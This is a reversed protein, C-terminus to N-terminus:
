MKDLGQGSTEVEPQMAEPAKTKLINAVAASALAQGFNGGYQQALSAAKDFESMDAVAKGNTTIMLKGNDGVFRTTFWLPKLLDNDERYNDGQADKYAQLDKETGSVTYVFVPNTSGSKRYNRLFTIKM